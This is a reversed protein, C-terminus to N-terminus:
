RNTGIESLMGAAPEPMSPLLELDLVITTQDGAAPTCVAGSYDEAASAPMQCNDNNTVAIVTGTCQAGSYDEGITSPMECQENKVVAPWNTGKLASLLQPSSAYNIQTSGSLELSSKTQLTAATLPGSLVHDGPSPFLFTTEHTERYIVPDGYVPGAYAESPMIAVSPEVRTLTLDGIVELRGDKTKLIRKSKFTLLTHDTVDPVYGTPLDGELTLVRGWDEDSPIISLDVVSHDLDTGLSVKGTLRAVGTNLSLPNEASGQFLVATSTSTNLSWSGGDAFAVTSILTLMVTTALAGGSALKVRRIILSKM